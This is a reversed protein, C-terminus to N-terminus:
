QGAVTGAVRDALVLADADSFRQWLNERGGSHNAVDVSGGPEAAARRLQSAVDRAADISLHLGSTRPDKGNPTVCAAATATSNRFALGSVWAVDYDSARKTPAGTSPHANITGLGKLKAAM